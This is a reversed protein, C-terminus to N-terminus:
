KNQIRIIFLLIIAVCLVMLIGILSMLVIDRTEEEAWYKKIISELWEKDYNM